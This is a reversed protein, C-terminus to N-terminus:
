RRLCGGSRFPAVRVLVKRPGGCDAVLGDSHAPATEPLAEEVGCLGPWCFADDRWWGGCPSQGAPVYAAALPLNMSSLAGGHVDPHPRALDM